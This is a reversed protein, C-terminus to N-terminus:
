GHALEANPPNTRLEVRVVTGVNEQSDVVIKGGLESIYQSSEYAGIGMGAAKTTRFPKFMRERIFEQSMGHGTDGVEVVARGNERLLKLWVRGDDPTADVANQVLHGIVRELRDAHGLVEIDGDIDVTLAPRFGSRAREIRGIVSALGVPSPQNVPTTGARLQMLLQKMREVAHGVTSLMDAQFDQNDKHREANKLLLSLQAVLNKVDHVVFASMRNFSDFKKSELLAETARMYAIYSAAQRAATKLLDLVEWNVEIKARSKGLVVFGFLEGTTTLPVVLWADALSQLWVPLDIDDYKEPKDAYESLDIVWHTKALFSALASTRPEVEKIGPMNLRAAQSLDGSPDALWLTGGPSEVLDALAKIAQELLGAKPDGSSLSQTFRLWEERYDYRYNFFHKNVLVRLKSRLSGSNFILGLALLGAFLFMVELAGGWTGGFYRVYYGTGAIAVLYLGAAFLTTSHFVLKRSVAIEIAWAKNRAASVAVFPVVFLNAIGRSTWVDADVRNFLFADAYMYLDFCFMGGLGLCLTKIGWREHASINRFVQEVLTLGVITLALSTFFSLRAATGFIAAALAPLLQLGISAAVLLGIGIVVWVPAAKRGGYSHRGPYFLLSLLFGVWACIRFTDLLNATIGIFLRGTLAYAAEAVAWCSSLFIAALIWGGRAGGRWGFGLQTAFAAFGLAALGYSWTALSADFSIM